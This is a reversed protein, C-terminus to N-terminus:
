SDIFQKAKSIFEKTNNCFDRWRIRMIKWGSNKSLEDKRKDRESYDKFRIHQDGDIEIAKKKNVWAFDLSYKGLPYEREFNKDEFENIIVESFFKEPYSPENNWRSMGINWARGEKHAIKMSNSIKERSEDSQHKGKWLSGNLFGNTEKTHLYNPNNKCNTIHGPLSNMNIEIDCHPCKGMRAGLDHHIRHSSLSKKSNFERGCIDCKFKRSDEM